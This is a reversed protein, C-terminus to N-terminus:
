QELNLNVNNRHNSKVIQEFQKKSRVVILAFIM